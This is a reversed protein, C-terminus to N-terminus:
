QAGNVADTIPRRVAHAVAGPVRHSQTQNIMRIKFHARAAAIVFRPVSTFSLFIWRSSPRNSTHPATDDHVLWPESPTRASGLAIFTASSVEAIWASRVMPEAWVCAFAM